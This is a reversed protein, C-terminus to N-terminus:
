TPSSELASQDLYNQLYAILSPLLEEVKTMLIDVQDLQRQRGAVEMAFCADAFAIAGLMRSSGKLNHANYEIQDADKDLTAQRLNKLLNPSEDTLFITIMRKPLNLSVKAIENLANEDFETNVEATTQPTAIEKPVNGWRELIRQLTDFFIPKTIYDDMGADLCMERDGQMASATMAILTPRSPHTSIEVWQNVIYTATELGNMVPMQVDLFVLDYTDTKLAAIAEAGNNVVTPAYGMKGLMALVLEQNILNDEAILINLPMKTALNTNLPHTQRLMNRGEFPTIAQPIETTIVAPLVFSFTSGENIVSEAWIRGGMMRVLKQCIALGLGTGGYKRATSISAQTFPQFLKELQAPTLGIGSDQVKFLLELGNETDPSLSVSLRVVGAPTFKVANNALNLLIQRLRIADGIIYTPTSADVECSLEIGKEQAQKALLSCTDAVIAHVDLPIHELLLKGSELKSFDLIDNIVTLLIEGSTQISQVFRQQDQELPTTSLLETMGLVGNIPTRIEHSMMALFDSKIRLASEAEEKAEQLAKEELKRDTIDRFRWVFGWFKGNPSTVPSSFYEYILDDTELEGYSVQDPSDYTDELITSLKEPFKAEHLLPLLLLDQAELEKAIPHIGWMDCIKKNYAVLQGQENAAIVGELTAELQALILANARELRNQQERIRLMSKVRARFELSNLPKSIFDTAGANLCKALDEKSNLATVMVIPIAKWEPLTRIVKCVEIGDMNPMMVDLLILDPQFVELSAIAIEGSEAYHLQYNQDSLLTEIVDFNDAEDDIILISALNM